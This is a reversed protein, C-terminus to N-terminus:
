VEDTDFRGSDYSNMLQRPTMKDRRKASSGEKGFRLGKRKQKVAKRLDAEDRNLKVDFKDKNSKSM